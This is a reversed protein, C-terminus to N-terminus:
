SDKIKPHYLPCSSSLYPSFLASPGLTNFALTTPATHTFPLWMKGNRRSRNKSCGSKNSRPTDSAVGATCLSAEKRSASKRLVTQVGAAEGTEGSSPLLMGPSQFATSHEGPNKLFLVLFTAWSWASQLGEPTPPSGIANQHGPERGTKNRFLLLTLTLCESICWTIDLANGRIPDWSRPQPRASGGSVRGCVCYVQQLTVM